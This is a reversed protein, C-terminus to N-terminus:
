GGDSFFFERDQQNLEDVAFLVIAILIGLFWVILGVGSGALWSIMLGVISLILFIRKIKVLM